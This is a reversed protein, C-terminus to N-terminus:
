RPWRSAAAPSAGNFRVMLTGAKPVWTRARHSTMSVAAEDELVLLGCSWGHGSRRRPPKARPWTEKAWGAVAADDREVARRAPQLCLWSHRRLLEWVGRVSLLVGTGGRDAAAGADVDM